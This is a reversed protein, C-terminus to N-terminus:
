IRDIIASNLYFEIDIVTRKVYKNISEM